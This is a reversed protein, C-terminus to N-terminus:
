KTADEITNRISLYTNLSLKRADAYSHKVTEWSQASADKM